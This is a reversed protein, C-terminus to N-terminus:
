ALEFSESTWQFAINLRRGYHRAVEFPLKNGPHPEHFQISRVAVSPPPTFHWASSRLKEAGFGTSVMAHLFDRWAIEGPQNPSDRSHLLTRFVKLSRKDVKLVDRPSPPRTTLLSAKIEGNQAMAVGKTKSKSKALLATKAFAGTVQKNVEHTHEWLATFEVSSTQSGKSIKTDDSPAVWPQTRM